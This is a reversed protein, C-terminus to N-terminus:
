RGYPSKWLTSRMLDMWESMESWKVRSVENWENRMSEMWKSLSMWKWKWELWKCLSVKVRGYPGEWLTSRILDMWESMKGRNVEIWKMKNMEWRNWENQYPCQNESESLDSQYPCEWGVWLSKRMPNIENFGDMWENWKMESLESWNMWIEDIGNMKIPVKEYPENLDSQYPCRWGVMPGNGYPECLWIRWIVWKVELREIWMLENLDWRNWENQYPSENESESLDSQYPCEWSVWLSKRMPNVFDFGDMWENWKMESLEGRNLWIEDIRIMKIPVNIKVWMLDSQYPYRRGVM